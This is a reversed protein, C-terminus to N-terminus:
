PVTVSVINSAASCDTTKSDCAIVYYSYQSGAVVNTDTWSTLTNSLLKVQFYGKQNRQRWVRITVTKAYSGPGWALCVSHASTALSTSGLLLLVVILKRM